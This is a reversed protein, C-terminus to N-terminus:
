IIRNEAAQQAITGPRRTQTRGAGQDGGRKGNEETMAEARAEVEAIVKDAEEQTWKGVGHREACAHLYVHCDGFDNKRHSGRKRWVSRLRGRGDNGSRGSGQGVLVLEEAALEAIVGEANPWSDIGPFQIPSISDLKDEFEEDTECAARLSEVVQETLPMLDRAIKSKWYHGNVYVLELEHPRIYKEGSGATAERVTSRYYPKPDNDKENTGKCAIFRDRGTQDQLARVLDYVQHTWFGSDIFWRPTLTRRAGIVPFSGIDILREQVDAFKLEERRPIIESWVLARQKGMAGFAYVLVKICDKQCDVAGFLAITWPPCQGFSHGGEEPGACLLRINHTEVRQGKTSPSQGMRDRWWTASPQGDAKVFDYVLGRIGEASVLSQMTCIRYGHRPGHSQEGVIRVGYRVSEESYGDEAHEAHEVQEEHFLRRFGDGGIKSLMECDEKLERTEVDLTELISGDSIIEEGQTIYIGHQIMWRHDDLNIRKECCPCKLWCNAAATQPDTKLGGIWQIMSFDFLESFAGCKSCPTMYTWRVDATDYMLQIGSQDDMPTSVNWMLSDSFTTQRSRGNEIPDEGSYDFADIEDDLVTGVPDGRLSDASGTYGFWILNSGLKVAEATAAKAGGMALLRAAPPCLRIAPVLRRENFKRGKAANPYVYLLSKGLVVITYLVICILLETAGIQTSKVFAIERVEPDTSRRLPERLYPTLSTDWRGSQAAGVGESPLTRNEDCWLDVPPKSRPTWARTTGERLITEIDAYM